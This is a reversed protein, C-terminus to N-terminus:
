DTCLIIMLYIFPPDCVCLHLHLCLLGVLYALNWLLHCPEVVSRVWNKSLMQGLCSAEVFRTAHVPPVYHKVATGQSLLIKLLFVEIQFFYLRSVSTFDHISGPCTRRMCQGDRPKNEGTSAERYRINEGRYRINEGCCNNWDRERRM